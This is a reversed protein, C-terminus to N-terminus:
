TADVDFSRPGRVDQFTRDWGTGPDRYAVCPPRAVQEVEFNALSESGSPPIYPASLTRASLQEWKFDRYWEHAELNALGGQRMPLRESAAEHCLQKVLDAWPGIPRPFYAAQIGAQIQRFIYIPESAAFPTDGTMCEYILVGLAWWDVASNHGVHLVMEPAFYEPTGCTTYTHGIVFKALGFDTVKCYGNSDLLLNEPKMDRYIIHRQHLHQFARIVCASYFRAHPASGHLPKRSYVTFLDGGMAPELLFHLYQMENFTAALRVIFPSNTMRLIQKENMVALEQRQQVIYGKSLTKLAFLNGTLTCKRLTVTGFGGCGLLGKYQLAKLDYSVAHKPSLGHVLQDPNVVMLFHERDLALVMVKDSKAVITAARPEDNLLAREGFFNANTDATGQLKAVEQNDVLVSVQGDYLIYFTDGKEGQQIITEGKYFTREILADALMAKEDAQLHKLIDVRGLLRAFGELKKKLPAQMVVRLEQRHIAFLTAATLARVTAARPARYLLALEGCSGGPELRQVKQGDKEVTLEGASVVYFHDAKVSGQQIVEFDPEVDVRVAAATVVDLDAVSMLKVLPGLKENQKLASKILESEEPSKQRLKENLESPESDMTHVKRRKHISSKLGLDRLASPSLVQMTLDTLAVVSGLVREGGLLANEGFYAGEPLITVKGPEPADAAEMLQARGKLVFFLEQPAQNQPIVHQGESYTRSECAAVLRPFESPHLNAFLPMNQLTVLGKQFERTKKKHSDRRLAKVLNGDGIQTALKLATEGSADEENPSADAEILSTVLELSQLKVAENLALSGRHQLNPNANAAASVLAQHLPPPAQVNQSWRVAGKVDRRRIIVAWAPVSDTETASQRM